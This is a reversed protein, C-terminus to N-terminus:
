PIMKPKTANFILISKDGQLVLSLTLFSQTNPISDITVIQTEYIPNALWHYGEKFGSRFVPIGYITLPLNRIEILKTPEQGQLLSFTKNVLKGNQQYIYAARSFYFFNFVIISIAAVHFIFMKNKFLLFLTYIISAAFFLSPLYLFRESEITKASIGLSLYPLYSFLWCLIIFVWYKNIRKLILVGANLL